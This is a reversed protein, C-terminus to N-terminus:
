SREYSNSDQIKIAKTCRFFYSFLNLGVVISLIGLVDKTQLTDNNINQLIITVPFALTLISTVITAKEHKLAAYYFIVYCFLFLATALIWNISGANLSFVSAYNNTFVLYVIMVLSGFFMRGFAAIVFDIKKLIEKVFIAEAAWMLTAISILAEGLGLNFNKLGGMLYIGFLIVLLAFYQALSFKERFFALSLVAVWIFLTKHIFAGSMAAQTSFSLGKFFLIFPIGGGVLGILFLNLWDRKSLRQFTKIKKLFILLSAILFVVVLNKATTFFYVNSFTKIVSSNIFVSVGSILATILSFYIGKKM